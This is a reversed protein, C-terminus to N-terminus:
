FLCLLLGFLWCLTLSGFGLVFCVVAVVCCFCGVLGCGFCLCTSILSAVVLRLGFFYVWLALSLGLWLSFCCDFWFEFTFVVM